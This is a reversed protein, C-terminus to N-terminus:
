FLDKRFQSSSHSHFPCLGGVGPVGTTAWGKHDRHCVRPM